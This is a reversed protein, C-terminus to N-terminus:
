HRTGGASDSTVWPIAHARGARTLWSRTLVFPLTPLINLQQIRAALARAGAIDGRDAYARAIALMVAPNQQDALALERLADDARHEALLLLGNLEHSQRVRADNRREAAGDSYVLAENRATLLEGRALAVRALDYHRALADDQKVEEAAGSASIWGHATHYMREAAEVRGWALLIDASTIEDASWNLTDHVAQALASRRTMARLAAATDGRDLHTYTLNLLAARREGDDRAGRYFEESAAISAEYRGAYMENAAIGAFSGTFHPDVSLARRYQAISEQYRGSKLLLEAYSDYPNPDTPALAIYQQFTREADAWQEVARYAYGLQNYALTYSPNISIAARLERITCDYQQQVTCANALTWHAREDNPYAAVLSDALLRARHPDNAKRAQLGAILLREGTSARGALMVARSLHVAADIASPATSALSYEALAFSSDARAADQFALYAEHTQLNENFSRGHLFHERAATSTTSLPIKGDTAHEITAGSPHASPTGSSCALGITLIIATGLMTSELPAPQRSATRPSM